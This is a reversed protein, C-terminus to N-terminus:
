PWCVDRGGDCVDGAGTRRPRSVKCAPTSAGFTNGTSLNPGADDEWGSVIVTTGAINDFTTNDIFAGPAANKAGVGQVIIASANNKPGCGLSNSQSDAGAYEVRAYSIRNGSAAPARFYLAAWDGAAKSAKASTFLVPAAPTGVADLVGPRVASSGVYIGSSPEADFALTVGAEIRLTVAPGDEHPNIYLAGKPHYPLGRNVLTDNRSFAKSTKMLIADQRNGTAALKAPLTEAVGPEIRVAYPADASGSARITLKSSNADFAGWGTLHVGYSASKDILVRDVLVNRTVDGFNTGGAVGVALLAGAEGAGAAGGSVLAAVTLQVTGKPQAAIHTWPANPDEAAFIVPRVDRSAGAVASTGAAVLKGAETSTGVDISAGPALLVVACAEVTVNAKIVLNSTIRHPGTAASWTEDASITGTHATGAGTSKACSGGNALEDATPDAPDSNSGGSSSSSSSSPSDSSSSECGGLGVLAAAFLAVFSSHLATSRM